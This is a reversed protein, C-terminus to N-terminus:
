ILGKTIVKKVLVLIFSELFDKLANAAEIQEKSVEFLKEALQFMEKTDMEKLLEDLKKGSELENSFNQFLNEVHAILEEPNSVKEALKKKAEELKVGIGEKLVSLDIRAM